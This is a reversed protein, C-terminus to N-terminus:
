IKSPTSLLKASLTCARSQLLHCWPLHPVSMAVSASWNCEAVPKLARQLLWCRPRPTYANHKHGVICHQPNRSPEQSKLARLVSFSWVLSTWLSLRSGPTLLGNHLLGKPHAFTTNGSKTMTYQVTLARGSEGRGHDTSQTQENWRRGVVGTSPPQLHGVRGCRFSCSTTRQCYWTACWYPEACANVPRVRARPWEQRLGKRRRMRMNAEFSYM